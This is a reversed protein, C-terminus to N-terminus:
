CFIRRLPSRRAARARSRWSTWRIRFGTDKGILEKEKAPTWEQPKPYSAVLSLEAGKVAQREDLVSVALPM